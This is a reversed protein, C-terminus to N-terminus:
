RVPQGDRKLPRVVLEGNAIVEVLGDKELGHERVFSIPLVLLYSGKSPHVKKKSIEVM